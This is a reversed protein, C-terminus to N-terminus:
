VVIYLESIHFLFANSSCPSFLICYNSFECFSICYKLNTFLTAYIQMAHFPFEESFRFRYIKWSNGDWANFVIFINSTKKDSINTNYYHKFLSLLSTKKDSINTNYYHKLLSLLSTKKDSINKNCYHKLLSLLSTKKDSESM